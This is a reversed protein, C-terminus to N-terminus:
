QSSDEPKADPVIAGGSIIAAHLRDLGAELEAVRRRLTENEEMVMLWRAHNSNNEVTLYRVDAKLIQNARDDVEALSQFAKLMGHMERCTSWPSLWWLRPLSEASYHRM